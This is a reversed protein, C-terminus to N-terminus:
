IVFLPHTTEPPLTFTRPLTPTPYLIPYPLPFPTPYPTPHPTPHSPTPYSIRAWSSRGTGRGSGGRGRGSLGRSRSRCDSSGTGRGRSGKGWGGRSGRSGLIGSGRGGRCRDMSGRGRIGKGRDGGM